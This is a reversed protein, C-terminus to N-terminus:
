IKEKKTTVFINGSGKKLELIETKINQIEEVVCRVSTTMQPVVRNFEAFRNNLEESMKTLRTEVDKIGSVSKELREVVEQHRAVVPIIAAVADRLGSITKISNEKKINEVSIDLRAKETNNRRQYIFFVRLLWRSVGIFATMFGWFGPDHFLM